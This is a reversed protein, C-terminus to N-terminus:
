QLLLRVPLGTIHANLEGTGTDYLNILAKNMHGTDYENRLSSTTILLCQCTNMKIAESPTWTILQANHLTCCACTIVPSSQTQLSWRHYAKQCWIFTCCLIFISCNMRWKTQCCSANGQLQIDMCYCVSCLKLGTWMLFCESSATVNLMLAQALFFEKQQNACHQWRTPLIQFKVNMVRLHWATSLKVDQAHVLSVGM